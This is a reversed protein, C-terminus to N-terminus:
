SGQGSTTAPSAELQTGESIASNADDEVQHLRGVQVRWAVVASAIELLGAVCFTPLYGFRKSFLGAFALGALLAYSGALNFAAVATGKDQRTTMEGLLVINPVYQLATFAGALAMFVLFAYPSSFAVTLCLSIGYGASGLAVGKWPGIRRIISGVPFSAGAFALWFATMVAGPGVLGKVGYRDQLVLPPLMALLAFTFKDVSGFLIPLHLRPITRVVNWMARLGPGRAAVQEPKRLDALLVLSAAILASGAIGYVAAIGGGLSGVVLTLASGTLYGLPVSAMFAAIFVAEAQSAALDLLRTMVMGVAIIGLFGDLFRLALLNLFGQIHPLLVTTLGTGISGAIALPLRRGWRDSALGVLLGLLLIQPLSHVIMFSTEDADPFRVTVMERLTPTVVAMSCFLLLNVLALRLM